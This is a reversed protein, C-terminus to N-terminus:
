ISRLGMRGDQHLICIDDYAKHFLDTLIVRVEQHWETWKGGEPSFVMTIRGGRIGVEVWDRNYDMANLLDCIPKSEKWSTMAQAPSGPVSVPLVAAAEFAPAKAELAPYMAMLDQIGM